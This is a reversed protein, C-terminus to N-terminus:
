PRRGGIPEESAHNRWPGRTLKKGTYEPRAGLQSGQTPPIDDTSSECCSVVPNKENEDHVRVTVSCLIPLRFFKADNVFFREFVRYDCRLYRIENGTKQCMPYAM